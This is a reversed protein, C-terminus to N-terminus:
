TLKWDLRMEKKALALTVGGGAYKRVVLEGGAARVAARECVNDVGATDKVFASATFDGDLAALAEASYFSLPWGHCACFALLGAEDRKLDISAACSVAEPVIGTERCLAAFRMELAEAGTGRRCGVGLVLARPVLTLGEHARIDVWIDAGDEESLRVCAPIAGDIPFLTRLTVPGGALRKSSVTKIKEPNWVALNQARAWDDVAFLGNRDTATTIVAEAGCIEAIRRALENAGGLHGSLLPVAYRACEDVAVVAPDSTKSVIYPAVTRVAIGVAGVYVLARKAAFNEATWSQLSVGDRTCSVEGGLATCLTGALARGKETFALFVPANM